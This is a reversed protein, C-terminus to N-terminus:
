LLFWSSSLIHADPTEKYPAPQVSVTKIKIGTRRLHSKVGTLKKQTVTFFKKPQIETSSLPSYFNATV